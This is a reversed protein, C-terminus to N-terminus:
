LINDKYLELDDKNLITENLNLLIIVKDDIKAIGNVFKMNLNTVTEPTNEISEDEIWVIENVEDVVFGALVSDLNIIVVKTSEDIGKQPMNFRKRLSIVTHVKGRLNILGEIFDPTDPIKFIEQPNIIEKVHTIEVGFTEGNVSFVVLQKKAM